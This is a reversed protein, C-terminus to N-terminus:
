APNLGEVTPFPKTEDRESLRPLEIGDRHLRRRQLAYFVAGLPIPLWYSVLRYALTALVADGADLGVITLMGTLGVEVFGIGGPTFPIRTLLTAAVFALLLLSPNADNGVGRVAM